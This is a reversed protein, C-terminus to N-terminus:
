EHRNIDSLSNINYFLKVKAGFSRFVITNRMKYYFSKIVLSIGRCFVSKTQLKQGKLQIRFYLNWMSLFNLSNGNNTMNISFIIISLIKTYNNVFLFSSLYILVLVFMKCDFDLDNLLLNSFLEFIPYLHNM